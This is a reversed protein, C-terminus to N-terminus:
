LNRRRLIMGTKIRELRNRVRAGKVAEEEEQIMTKWRRIRRIKGGM